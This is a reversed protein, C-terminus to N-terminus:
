AKRDWYPKRAAIYQDVGEKTDIVIVRVGRRRREAHDRLQEPRPKEGPKKLEVFDICGIMWTAIRDPVARRAPSVFKEALGGHEHVQRVFYKEIDREIV